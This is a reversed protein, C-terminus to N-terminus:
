IKPLKTRRFKTRYPISSRSAESRLLLLFCRSNERMLSIFKNEQLIFSRLFLASTFKEQQVIDSMEIVELALIELSAEQVQISLKPLLM